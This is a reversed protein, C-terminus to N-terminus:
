AYVTHVSMFFYIFVYKELLFKGGKLSTIGYGWETYRRLPLWSLPPPWSSPTVGGGGALTDLTRNGFKERIM